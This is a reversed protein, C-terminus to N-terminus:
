RGHRQGDLRTLSGTLKTAKGGNHLLPRIAVTETALAVRGHTAAVLTSLGPYSTLVIMAMSIATASIFLNM